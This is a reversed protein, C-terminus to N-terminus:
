NGINWLTVYGGSDGSIVKRGDPSFAVCIFHHEFSFTRIVRGSAVEWLKLTSWQKLTSDDSGSIVQKGDPSFAVSNVRRGSHGSFTRIVRGSAVDWLNLTYAYSSSIPYGKPDFATSSGSIVQRGDPSFAVSSVDTDPHGSFTRIVNGSAVDWLKLTYDHSGSIAQKGDPSFAVSSVGSSHGIFTRVERGSAVDWLKLTRDSSGSIVQRGDPSFAVSNVRSSHGTFTRVERGSAVDWLKLTKDDSSGSIVQRGDPSFAVSNVGSSHGTFTRVERGSAVDWLKLTKDDSSGSIVQKGDPSFAVSVVNGSHGKVNWEVAAIAAPQQERTVAAAEEPVAYESVQRHVAPATTVAAAERDAIRKELDGTEIKMYGTANLNRALIGNVADIVITLSPTLDDAKVNNFNVTGEVSDPKSINIPEGLSNLSITQSNLTVSNKGITKNNENLLSVDVKCSFSRTGNFLVTGATKPSIDALPWNSFGWVGRRGTKELGELLANLAGFGADSPELAIRMGLNATRSIYNTEGIQMLSPDFVIEFPPHDNFFKTTEKFVELWRDRAQIDNLIRQSITGGSISTSLTNLRSLAEIQTPDFTIAQAFNFLAQVEAGGTQATIGRALGAEALATLTNGALLAQKGATTLQVGLQEFLEATAENIITGNVEFQASTGDKMFNAKRVGTSAETVSLQLSYRNGSLRQITGFLFYQANTLNGISVFDRESFRGNAAINQEAIIRDLNQRDILNVASFKKINNNLLGQIYLPLYGPVDGQVVPALIALRINSGGNGTYMPGAPATERRGISGQASIGTGDTSGNAASSEGQGGAMIISTCFFFFFASFLLIKINSTKM